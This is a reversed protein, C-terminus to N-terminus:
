SDVIQDLLFQVNQEDSSSTPYCYEKSPVRWKLPSKINNCIFYRLTKKLRSALASAGEKPTDMLLILIKHRNSTSLLDTDRISNRILKKTSEMFDDFNGFNEIENDVDIHTLDLSVMSVFTAYRKARRIEEQARAKFTRLDSYFLDMDAINKNKKAM